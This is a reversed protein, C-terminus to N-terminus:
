RMVEKQLAWRGLYLVRKRYGSTPHRQTQYGVHWVQGDGLPSRVWGRRLMAALIRAGVWRVPHRV